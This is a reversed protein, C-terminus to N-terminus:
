VRIACNYHLKKNFSYLKRITVPIITGDITHGGKEGEKEGSQDGKKVGGGNGRWSGAVVM